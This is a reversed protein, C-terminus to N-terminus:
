KQLEHSIKNKGLIYCSLVTFTILLCPLILSTSTSIYFNVWSKIHLMKGWSIFNAGGIGLFSLTAEAMIARGIGLIALVKVSQFSNPLIHLVLIRWSPYGLAKSAEVFPVTRNKIVEGRILRAITTWSLLGITLIIVQIGSGSEIKGGMNNRSLWALVTTILILNPLSEIIEILRLIWADIHIAWKQSTNIKKEYKRATMFLIFPIIFFILIQHLLHIWDSDISKFRYIHFGYYHGLLLGVFLSIFTFPGLKFARRYFIGSCIGLFIGIILALLISGLGVILSYKTGHILCALLDRGLYDTGLPHPYETSMVSINHRVPPWITKTCYLTELSNDPFFKISDGICLVPKDNALFPAFLAVFLLICIWSWAFIHPFQQLIRKFNVM